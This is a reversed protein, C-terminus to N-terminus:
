LVILVAAAKGREYQRCEASRLCPLICLVYLKSSANLISNLDYVTAFMFGSVVGVFSTKM